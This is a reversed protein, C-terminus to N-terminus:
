LDLEETNVMSDNRFNQDILPDNDAGQIREYESHVQQEADHPSGRWFSCTFPYYWKLPKEPDTEIKYPWLYLIVLAYFATMSVAIILIKLLTIDPFVEFRMHTFNLTNMQTYQVVGM